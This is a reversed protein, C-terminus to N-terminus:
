SAAKRKELWRSVDAPDFRLYRGVPIAQPGEGRYRWRYVTNVPVGLLEALEDVSLLRELPAPKQGDPKKGRETM